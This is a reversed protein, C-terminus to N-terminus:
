ANLLDWIRKYLQESEYPKNLMNEILSKDVKDVHSEGAYGSALQIKILPYREHVIASLEYGDMDPMIVDSLLVDVSNSSLISLAAQASDATTVTYGQRTLLNKVLKRIGPEDDVLLIRAAGRYNVAGLKRIVEGEIEPSFPFYLSFCSGSGLESHVTIAGQSSKVFGYVQSLGLGTGDNGKTSFFPEFVKRKTEDDMGTGSDTVSLLVYDSSQLQLRTATENDSSFKRTKLTLEGQGKIAHMANISMNLLADELDSKDLWVPCINEDLDLSLRIRVTLSKELVAKLGLLVQNIDVSAANALKKRSFGLLKQTLKAGRDSAYNIERAFDLLEDQGVLEEELLDSYGQVIGLINNFDHAIGSTLNGLADMKQSRHLSEEQRKIETLDICSGIFRRKGNEGKPLEAVSLRLPFKQQNKREGEVERGMGIVSSRGFELYDNLYRDHRVAIAAPMLIRINEGLVDSAKYGFMVEAAPNFSTMVGNQDIVIVCDCMFNLIDQLEKEKLIARSYTRKLESNKSELVDLLADKEHSVKKQESLDIIFVIYENPVDKFMSGGIIIPVRHGDKHIYEKEFPTWFGKVSAEAIAEVDKPLFEPPTLDEWNLDGSLLEQRSYGIMDLLADNADSVGGCDDSQLIGIFNSAKWREFRESNSRMINEATKRESIDLITVPISSFGAVTSPIPMSLLCALSSGDLRKFDAEARFYSDKNWIACIEDIFVDISNEGFTSSIDRILESASSASFLNVSTPNVKIVNVKNALEMAVNPNENLYQRIDDIGKERLEELCQYVNSFDEQWISVESKEFLARFNDESKKLEIQSKQSARFLAGLRVVGIVMVISITLAALESINNSASDSSHVLHSFSLSQRLGMLLLALAIFSWASKWGAIRAFRCALFAATLQFGISLGVISLSLIM